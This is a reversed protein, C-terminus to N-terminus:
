LWNNKFICSHYKQDIQIYTSKRRKRIWDNITRAQKESAAVNQIRQYDDKLNAKHPESRSKLYLIHYAKKGEPTVYAMPKTFEGVKLQDITFFLQKDLESVEFRTTGSQPNVILGGNYKTEADDSYKLAAKDFKITDTLLYNYISDLSLQANYLDAPSTKPILLIHRLNYQEGRRDIMQIIHYGFLTEIVRSVEGEKLNFGTAEFEPVLQGRSMFGLEGGRAASGPDESYLAAMSAFDTGGIIRERLKELKEKVADKEAQAVPPNKLIHGIEVESNIFPLSDSPISNYYARVESPTIKIDGAIKGQMTQAVLQERIDDRFEDKIESITKNYFEELKQESGLQEAFFRIRKELEQEVQKDNVEVSDVQAQYVLMKQFLLQELLECDSLIVGEEGQEEMQKKLRQLDSYKVPYSGIVAIVEDIVQEQAFCINASFILLIITYLLTKFM